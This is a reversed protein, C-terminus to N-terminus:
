RLYFRNPREGSFVIGGRAKEYLGKILSLFNGGTGLRSFTKRMFLQHVKSFAREAGISIIMFKEKKQRNM